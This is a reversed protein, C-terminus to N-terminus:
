FLVPSFADLAFMVFLLKLEVFEEAVEAFVEFAEAALSVPEFKLADLLPLEFAEAGLLVVLVEPPFLELLV